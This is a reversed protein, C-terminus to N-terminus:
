LMRARKGDGEEEHWRGKCTEDGQRQGVWHEIIM